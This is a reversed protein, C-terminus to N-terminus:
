VTNHSTECKKVNKRGLSVAKRIADYSIPTGNEAQWINKIEKCSSGSDAMVAMQRNRSQTKRSPKRTNPKKLMRKVVDTVEKFVIAEAKAEIVQDVWQEFLDVLGNISPEM